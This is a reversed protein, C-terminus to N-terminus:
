TLTKWAITHRNKNSLNINANHIIAANFVILRNKKYPISEKGENILLERM